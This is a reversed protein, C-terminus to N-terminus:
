RIRTWFDLIQCQLDQHLPGFGQRKIPLFHILNQSGFSGQTFSYHFAFSDDHFLHLGTLNCNILAITVGIKALGLWTIIFEPKNEMYLAAVDKKKLGKSAM